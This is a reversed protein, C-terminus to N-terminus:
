GVLCLIQIFFFEGEKWLFGRKDARFVRVSPDINSIDIAQEVRDAIKINMDAVSSKNMSQKNYYNNNVTENEDASSKQSLELCTPTLQHLAKNWNQEFCFLRARPLAVSLYFSRQDRIFEAAKGAPNNHLLISQNKMVIPCVGILNNIFFFTMWKPLTIKMHLNLLLKIQISSPSLIKVLIFLNNMIARNYIRSPLEYGSNEDISSAFVIYSNNESLCDAAWTKLVLERALFPTSISVQLINELLSIKQHIKSVECLPFWSSYREFDSFVCFFDFNSLDDNQGIVCASISGDREEHYTTKVGNLEAGIEWDSGASSNLASEINACRAHLLVVFDRDEAVLDSSSLSIRADECLRRAALYRGESCLQKAHSRTDSDFAPKSKM